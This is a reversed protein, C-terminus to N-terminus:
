RGAPVYSGNADGYCIGKFNYTVRGNVTVPQNNFFWDGTPFTTIINAIRKKILLVDVATLDGSGNVDGSALYIGSLSSINAIHKRYLLVDAASVGGWPKHSTVNMTYTGTDIDRFLYYGQANTLTDRVISDGKALEVTIGTLPTAGANAYTISGDLIIITTSERSKALYAPNSSAAYLYGTGDLALCSVEDPFVGNLLQFSVGNDKSVIVQGGIGGGLAVFIDDYKNILIKTIYGSAKKVWNNQNHYKVYIGSLEYQTNHGYTGVFLDGKSNLALAKVHFNYLGITDWTSGGDVSRFMGGGEFYNTSGAYITDTNRIAIDTVYEANNSTQFVELWNEGYDISRLINCTNGFSSAFLLGDKGSTICVINGDAAYKGIWTQGNDTSKYINDDLNQTCGAYINGAVDITMSLFGKDGMGLFDWSFGTDTSRYIGGTGANKSTGAFIYGQNNIALCHINTSDPFYLTAWFSQTHGTLTCFFLLATTILSLPKHKM